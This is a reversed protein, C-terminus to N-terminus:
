VDLFCEMYHIFLYLFLSSGGTQSKLNVYENSILKYLELSSCTIKLRTCTVHWLTGFQATYQKWDIHTFYSDSRLFQFIYLHSLSKEKLYFCHLLHCLNLVLSHLYITLLGSIFLTQLIKKTFIHQKRIIEIAERTKKNSTRHWLQEIITCHSYRAM